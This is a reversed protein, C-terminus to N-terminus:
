TRNCGKYRRERAVARNVIPRQTRQNLALCLGADLADAGDARASLRRSERVLFVVLDDLLRDLKGRPLALDDGARAGVGRGLGHRECLGRYRSAARVCAELHRRVVVLRVWLPEVAVEHRDGVEPKGDDEVVHWAAGPALYREVDDHAERLMGVDDRDLLGRARDLPHAGDLIPQGVEGDEGAVIRERERHGRDARFAHDGDGRVDDRLLHAVHDAKREGAVENAGTRNVRFEIREEM